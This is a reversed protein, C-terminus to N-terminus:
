DRSFAKEVEPISELKQIWKTLYPFKEQFQLAEAAGKAHPLAIIDALSIHDGVLFGGNLENAKLKQEFFEYASSLDKIFGPLNEEDKTFRAINFKTQKPGLNSAHYFLIQTQEWYLLSDIPYSAKNETDYKNAIYQLIAGSEALTFVEGKENVDQIVPIQKNPNIAVFWPEKTVTKFDKITRYIYQKGILDLLLTIKRGNITWSTFLKLYPAEHGEPYEPDNDKHIVPM